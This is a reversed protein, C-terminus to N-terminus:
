PNGCVLEPLFFEAVLIPRWDLEFLSCRGWSDNGHTIDLRSRRLGPHSFLFAGLPQNRLKRVAGLKGMLSVQPVLTHALVWPTDHGKLIVKRSWMRQSALRAGLLRILYPSTGQWWSESVVQVSFHGNSFAVLAETLSGQDLLWHRWVPPPQPFFQQCDKWILDRDSIAPVFV